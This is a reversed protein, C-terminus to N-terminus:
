KPSTKAREEREAEIAALTKKAREAREATERAARAMDVQPLWTELDVSDWVPQCRNTRIVLALPLVEGTAAMHAQTADDAM